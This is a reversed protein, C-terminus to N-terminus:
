DMKYPRQKADQEPLKLLRESEPLALQEQLYSAREAITPPKDPQKRLFRTMLGPGEATEPALKLAMEYDALAGEHDGMRDRLIGRNAYTVGFNQERSIADDYVNLALDNKGMQMLAQAKGRLAYVNKPNDKLQSEYERLADENRGDELHKAAVQVSHAGPVSEELFGDYISWSVWVLTIGIAVRVLIKYLKEDM